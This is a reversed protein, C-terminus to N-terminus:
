AAMRTLDNPTPSALATVVTMVSRRNEESLALFCRALEPGEHTRRLATLPDAEDGEEVGYFHAPHVKLAEAILALRGGAVRNVGKEYKQIQQFTVGAAAALGAQTIQLSERRQRIRTGLAVDFPDPKTTM